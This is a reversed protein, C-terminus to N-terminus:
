GGARYILEEASNTDLDNLDNVKNRLKVAQLRGRMSQRTRGLKEELIYWHTPPSKRRESILYETDEKTWLDSRM